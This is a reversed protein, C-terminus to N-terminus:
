EILRPASPGAQNSPAGPIGQTVVADRIAAARVVAALKREVERFRFYAGITTAMFVVILTYLMLDTGRTVGVRDALWQLLQPALISVIASATLVVAFVRTGARLGASSRHRFAWVFMGVFSVILLIKIANM